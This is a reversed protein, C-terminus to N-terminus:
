PPKSSNSSNLGLRRELEGIREKQGASEAELAAVRAKLATNEALVAAYKQQLESPAM